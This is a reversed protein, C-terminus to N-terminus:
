RIDRQQLASASTVSNGSARKDRLLESARLRSLVLGRDVAGFLLWFTTGVALQSYRDGFINTVMVAFTCTVFGFGVARTFDSDGEKYLRWGSSLAKIFVLALLVVGVMGQEAATQLYFNHVNRLPMGASAYFFGNFGVGFFPNEAFLKKGLDWVVIRLASSEELAGDESETMQIRDVVSDPLVVDWTLLLAVVVVILLRYRLLGVLLMAGMVALYAGRSYSYFLPYLSLVLTLLYLRRRTKNTDVVLMGLALSAYHAVFAGFHNANLGVIWFPGNARRNYSFSSGAVFGSLERWVIFLLVGLTLAVMIKVHQQTQLARYAVLYMSMMLVYNKWDALVQNSRTIPAPLNYQLSVNWLSGYSAVILVGLLVRHLAPVSDVRREVWTGILASFFLLDMTDKGLPFQQTPYWFTPIPALVALLYLPVRPRGSLGILAALLVGIYVSYPLLAEKIFTLM